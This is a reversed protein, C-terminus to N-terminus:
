RKMRQLELLLAHAHLTASKTVAELVQAGNYQKMEALLHPNSLIGQMAMGALLEVKSLGPSAYTLTDGHESLQHPTPYASDHANAM